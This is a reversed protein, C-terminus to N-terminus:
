NEFGGNKFIFYPSPALSLSRGLWSLFVSFIYITPPLTKLKKLAMEQISPYSKAFYYLLEFAEQITSGSQCPPIVDRDSRECHESRERFVKRRQWLSRRSLDTELMGSLPIAKGSPFTDARGSGM